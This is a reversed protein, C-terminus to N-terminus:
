RHRNYARVAADTNASSVPLQNFVAVNLNKVKSGQLLRRVRALSTTAHDFRKHAATLRKEWFLARELSPGEHSTFVESYGYEIFSLRLWAFIVQDILLKELPGDNQNALEKEMQECRFVIVEKAFDTAKAKRIFQTRAQTLFDGCERWISKEPTRRMLAKLADVDAQKPQTVDTRKILANLEDWTALPKPTPNKKPM